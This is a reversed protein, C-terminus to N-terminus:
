SLTSSQRSQPLSLSAIVDFRFNHTLTKLSTALEVHESPVQQILHLIQRDSCQTAALHLNAIWDPPMALLHEPNLDAPKSMSSPAEFITEYQYRVGLYHSLKALLEDKQFPKHILDDCGSLLIAQRQEEFATATLAIVVTSQGQPTSKIARTAAYGDMVPMQMDMWILHPQWDQWLAIAQQGNEATQVDFGLSQMMKLMLTRNTSSDEVVLIRYTPQNPELGVVRGSTSATRDLIPQESLVAQISFTFCSGQNLESEVAINGGLLEVFKRSIALGLGTGEVQLGNQAREFPQFITELETASIGSGTDQIEFYLICTQPDEASHSIKGNPAALSVSLTVSGAETFKIANGTLNILIQRLKGLDTRIFRPMDSAYRVSLKLGKSQARLRFMEELEDLLAILDCESVNAQIRGAEIKSMELVGNILDLLHEGSRSIINIYDQFEPKISPDRHMLQTFGLIANLPTRLEHSMSALFESKARNAADAARKAQQLETAQRQTQALLEAQQIAVGLQAGIQTALKIESSTWQRAATNQYSALLGWLQTGCYIPVILYAKVQFSELLNVYCPEFNPTYIDTVALYRLGQSYAGGQTEQLYTDQVLSETENFTKVICRDSELTTSTEIEGANQQILSRWGAAVAEAVFAGSWDPNFRYIAVRDCGLTLRLEETTARFITDLDLSQRMRQIIRAIAIERNATQQLTSALNEQDTIDSLTCVVREVQADADLQPEANVLLWRYTADSDQNAPIQLGLVAGRIPQRLAIAQQVPLDQTPIPQLTKDVLNWGDGFTQYSVTSPSWKLLCLAAQNYTLVEAQANLLLVGVQMERILMRFRKESELLTQQRIQQNLLRQDFLSAVLLAILLLLTYIGVAIALWAHSINPSATTSSPAPLNTLRTFRVAAMGTYHMSSIAVGMVIASATRLVIARYTNDTPQHAALWLAGFAAVMAIFVSLIVLPPEYVLSMHPEIAMMGIYHMSAIALGMAGGGLLLFSQRQRSQSLLWFAIGSAAFACVWSMVTLAIDYSVAIPLQVALMAVFHMSWIGTAMATAGAWFWFRRQPASTATPSPHSTGLFQIRRVLDLATYSGLIAIAFSLAVLWLNYSGSSM